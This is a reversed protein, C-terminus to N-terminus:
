KFLEALWRIVGIVDAQHLRMRKDIPNDFYEQYRKASLGMAEFPTMKALSDIQHLLDARLSKSLLYPPPGTPILLEKLITRRMGPNEVILSEVAAASLRPSYGFQEPSQIGSFPIRSQPRTEQTGPQHSGGSTRGSDSAFVPSEPQITAEVSDVVKGPALLSTLSLFTLLATTM